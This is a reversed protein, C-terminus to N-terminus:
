GGHAPRPGHVTRPPVQTEAAPESSFETHDRLGAPTRTSSKAGNLTFAPSGTVRGTAPCTQSQAPTGTSNDNAQAPAPYGV